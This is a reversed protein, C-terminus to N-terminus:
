RISRWDELTFFEVRGGTVCRDMQPYMCAYECAICAFHVYFHPSMIRNWICPFAGCKGRLTLSLEELLLETVTKPYVVM